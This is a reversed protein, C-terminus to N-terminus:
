QREKDILTQQRKSIKKNKAKYLIPCTQSAAQGILVQEKNLKSPKLRYNIESKKRPIRATKKPM